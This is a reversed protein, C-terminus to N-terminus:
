LNITNYKYEEYQKKDFFLGLQYNANEISSPSHVGNFTRDLDTINGQPDIRKKFYELNHFNSESIKEKLYGRLTHENSNKGTGVIDSKISMVTKSKPVKYLIISVGKSLNAVLLPHLIKAIEPYELIDPGYVGLFRELTYSTKVVDIVELGKNELFQKAQLELGEAEPKILLFSLKNNEYNGIMEQKETPINHDNMFKLVLDQIVKPDNERPTLGLQIFIEKYKTLYIKSELAKPQQLSKSNDTGTVPM